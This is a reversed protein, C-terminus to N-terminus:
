VCPNRSDAGVSAVRSRATIFRRQPIRSAPHSVATACVYAPSSRSGHTRIVDAVRFGLEDGGGAVVSTSAARRKDTSDTFGGHARRVIPWTGRLRPKVFPELPQPAPIDLAQAAVASLKSCEGVFEAEWLAEQSRNKLLNPHKRVAYAARCRQEFMERDSVGGNREFPGSKTCDAAGRKRVLSAQSLDDFFQHLQQRGQGGLRTGAGSVLNAFASRLVLALRPCGCDFIYRNLLM